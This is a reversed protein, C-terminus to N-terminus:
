KNQEIAYTSSEGMINSFYFSSIQDESQTYEVYISGEEATAGPGESDVTEYSKYEIEVNDDDYILYQNTFIPSTTQQLLAYAMGNQTYYGVNTQYVLQYDKTIEYSFRVEDDKKIAVVQIFDDNGQGLIEYVFTIKNETATNEILGMVEMEQDHYLILGYVLNNINDERYYLQFLVPEDVVNLSTFTIKYDYGSKESTTFAFRSNIDTGLFLRITSLHYHLYTIKEDDVEDLYVTDDMFMSQHSEALSTLSIMAISYIEQTETAYILDGEPANKSAWFPPLIVAILLLFVISFGLSILAKRNFCFFVTQKITSVPTEIVANELIKKTNLEPTMAKLETLLNDWNDKRSM